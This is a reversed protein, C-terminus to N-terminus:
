RRRCCGAAPGLAVVDQALQRGVQAVADVVPRGREASRQGLVLLDGQELLDPLRHRDRGAVPTGLLAQRETASQDPRLQERAIALDEGEVDDDGSMTPAIMATAPQGPEIQVAIVM